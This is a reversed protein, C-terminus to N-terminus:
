WSRPSMTWSETIAACIWRSVGLRRAMSIRRARGMCNCRGREARAVLVRERLKLLETDMLDSGPSKLTLCREAM